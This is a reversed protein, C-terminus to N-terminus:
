VKLDNKYNVAFALDRLKSSETVKANDALSGIHFFNDDPIITNFVLRYERQYSLDENKFLFRKASADFFSQMRNLMNQPCYNIKDFLFATQNDLSYQEIQRILKDAGIIVCYKGFTNEMNNYEESTFPFRFITEKESDSDLFMDRLTLGVFSIIPMNDDSKYQTTVTAESLTFDCEETENNIFKLNTSDIIQLLEYKDGQGREGTIKEKERFFEPTNAYLDGNVIDRAFKEQSTFKLYFLPKNGLQSEIQQIVIDDKSISM